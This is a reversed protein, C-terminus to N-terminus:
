VLEVKVRSMNAWFVGNCYYAYGNHWNSRRRIVDQEPPRIEISTTYINHGVTIVLNCRRWIESHTKFGNKGEVLALATKVAERVEWDWEGFPKLPRAMYSKYIIKM